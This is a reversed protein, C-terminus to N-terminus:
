ANRCGGMREKDTGILRTGTTLLPKILSKEPPSRIRAPRIKQGKQYGMEMASVIAVAPPVM